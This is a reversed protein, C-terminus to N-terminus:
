FATRNACAGDACAGGACAGGGCARDTCAGSAEGKNGVASSGRGIFVIATKFSRGVALGGRGIFIMAIEIFMMAGGIFAIATKFSKKIALSGKGIFTAARGVFTM